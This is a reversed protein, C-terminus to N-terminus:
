VIERMIVQRIGESLLTSIQLPSVLRFWRELVVVVGCMQSGLESLSKPQFIRPNEARVIAFRVVKMLKNETGDPSNEQSRGGFVWLGHTDLGEIKSSLIRRAKEHDDPEIENWMGSLMHLSEIFDVVLDVESEDLRDIQFGVPEGQEVLDLVTPGSVCRKLFMFDVVSRLATSECLESAEVGFASTLAMEATSGMRGGREIRQITRESLRSIRALQWQTWKREERIQRVRNTIQREASGNTEISPNTSISGKRGKAMM